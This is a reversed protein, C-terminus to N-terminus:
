AYLTSRSFDEADLVRGVLILASRQIPQRQVKEVIDALCGRVIRQDPWSARYVVAVPCDMGYQPGLIEVIDALRRISLHIALTARHRALETLSEGDPMRTRSAHRTMILTQSIDPLTLECNLAAASAAAATVGPIIEFAIGRARLARIQEGIAGFLSPDGSHLRAVDQGRADARVLHEVIQELDLEATDVM